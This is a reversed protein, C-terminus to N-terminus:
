KKTDRKLLQIETKLLRIEALSDKHRGKLSALERSQRKADDRLFRNEELLTDKEHLLVDRRIAADKSFEDFNNVARTLCEIVRFHEAFWEIFIKLQDKFDIPHASDLMENLKAESVPCQPIKIM